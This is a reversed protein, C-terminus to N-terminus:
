QAPLANADFEEPTYVQAYWAANPFISPWIPGAPIGKWAACLDRQAGCVVGLRSLAELEERSYYRSNSDPLIYESVPAAVESDLSLVENLFPISSLDPRFDFAATVLAFGIGVSAIFTGFSIWFTNRSAGSQLLPLLGIPLITPPITALSIMLPFNGARLSNGYQGQPFLQMEEMLRALAKGDILKVDDEIERIWQKVNGVFGSTTIIIIRDAKFKRNVGVLKQLTERGVLNGDAYCKCKSLQRKGMLSRLISTVGEDNSSPTM